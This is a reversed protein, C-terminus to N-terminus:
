YCKVTLIFHDAWHNFPWLGCVGEDIRTLGAYLKPFRIPFDNHHPPPSLSALGELKIKEFNNGLAKLVQEPSFYYCNFNVGEIHALSGSRRLRRTALKWRGRLLMLLEWPCIRPMIVWTVHAGPNLLEPLLATVDRLDEICNLGGFNSFVYDFTRPKLSRLDTFSCQQASVKDTVQALQVKEKLRQIMADSLDTAHVSYGLQAFFVADTGTGANLELIRDGPKLFQLVHRRVRERMWKLIANTEEYADYGTSQISFAEHVRELNQGSQTSQGNM